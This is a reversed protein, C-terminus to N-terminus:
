RKRLLRCSIPHIFCQGIFTKLHLIGRTFEAVNRVCQLKMNQFMKANNGYLGWNKKNKKILSRKYSNRGPLLCVQKNDEFVCM